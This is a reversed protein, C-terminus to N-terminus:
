SGAVELLLIDLDDALVVLADDDTPAAGYLLADVGIPDGGTRAIVAAVMGERSTQAGLGLRRAIRDRAGGRLAESATARSRSARYLRSRGEVSEAARVVVALPETVVSGLRRARWLALLGLAVFLQLAALRLGFPVLDNLSSSRAVDRAGPRALLWQVDHGAGLLSLALAANGRKDLRANTFLDAAGLATVRGDQVLTPRGSSAYCGAGSYTVGGLDVDGARNAAALACAPSRDEVAVDPADTRGPAIAQLQAGTARVVVLRSPLDALEKLEASTFSEAVPVFVTSDGGAVVAQATEVRHVPVGRNALLAAIAHAGQQTYSDPNLPDKPGAASYFAAVLGTLVLTVVALVPGRASRAVTRATQGTATSVPVDDLLTM